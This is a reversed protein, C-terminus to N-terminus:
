LLSGDRKRKEDARLLERVYDSASNYRGRSVQEDLFRKLSDPLTITVTHMM